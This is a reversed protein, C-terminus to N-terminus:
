GRHVIEATWADPAQHALEWFREAVTDPEFGPGGLVGDVTVTAVHVGTGELDRAAALVFARLAAKALTIPTGGPWPNLAVGSGTALFTGSGRERMAPVTEQFSVVAGLTGVEFAERLDATAAGEPTGPAGVSANFVVLDPGGLAARIAGFAARLSAEVGIDAVYASAEIGLGALEAVFGAGSAEDRVVLAVHGEPGFRRALSMGMGPGVGVVVSIM